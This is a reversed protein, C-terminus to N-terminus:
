KKLNMVVIGALICGMGILQNVSVKEKLFFVSIICIFVYILGASIPYFVSLDMKKMVMMSLLFSIVYICMGLLLVYNVQLQFGVKDIRLTFDSATGIKILTLGVTSMIVYILLGIM